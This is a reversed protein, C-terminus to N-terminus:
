EHFEYTREKEARTSIAHNMAQEVSNGHHRPNVTVERQSGNQQWTVRWIKKNREWTVGPTHCVPGGDQTARRMGPRGGNQPATQRHKLELQRTYDEAGDRAAQEGLKDISFAKSGAPRKGNIVPPRAVWSHRGVHYTCNPVESQYHAVKITTKGESPGAAADWTPNSAYQPNGAPRRDAETRQPLEPTPEQKAKEKAASKAVHDSIARRRKLRAAISTDFNDGGVEGGGDADTHHMHIKDVAVEM